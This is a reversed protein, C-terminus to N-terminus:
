KTKRTRAPRQAQDNPVLTWVGHEIRVTKTAGPGWVAGLGMGRMAGSLVVCDAWTEDVRTVKVTARGFRSHTLMYKCDVLPASDHAPAFQGPQQSKSTTTNKIRKEQERGTV